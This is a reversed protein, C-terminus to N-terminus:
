QKTSIDNSPTQLDDDAFEEGFAAQYAGALYFVGEEDDVSELHLDIQGVLASMEDVLLKIDERRRELSGIVKSFSGRREALESRDRVLGDAVDLVIKIDDLTFGLRKARLIRELRAVDTDHFVRVGGEREPCLLGKDEYFRIARPTIDLADSVAQIGLSERSSDQPNERPSEARAKNKHHPAMVRTYNVNVNVDLLRSSCFISTTLLDHSMPGM